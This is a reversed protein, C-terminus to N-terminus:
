GTGFIALMSLVAGVFESLLTLFWTFEGGVGYPDSFLLRNLRIM